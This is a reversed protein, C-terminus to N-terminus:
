AHATGHVNTIVLRNPVGDLAVTSHMAADICRKCAQWITSENTQQIAKFLCIEAKNRLRGRADRAIEEITTGERLYPMVHLAYDLFPRNIIYRAGWYKAQLRALLIDNSPPDSDSWQFHPPLTQRWYGLVDEHGALVECVQATSLSLCHDGYLERHVQNLRKRLFTQATYFLLINNYSRQSDTEQHWAEIDEYSQREEDPMNHPLLLLNEAAQIGSSPLRLEALVDSELQLCTWSALVILNCRKDKIRAQGRRHQKEIDGHVNWYNDNYLKHQDLLMMITRSALVICNLSERVRALQGKYLGALLFMQAHPLSNGDCLDGLIEAAKAYYALGPIMDLNRPETGRITHSSSNGNQYDPHLSQIDVIPPTSQNSPTSDPSMPNQGAAAFFPSHSSAGFSRTIPAGVDQTVGPLPTKHLCIKGLALVLWVIANEPSRETTQTAGVDRGPQTVNYGGTSRQRKWAREQSTSGNPVIQKTHDNSTGYESMFRKILTQLGAKDLFPHLIHIHQLYSKYLTRITSIDLDLSGDTKLGGQNPLEFRGTDGNGLTDHFGTGWLLNSPRPAGDDASDESREPSGCGRRSTGDSYKSGEGRAYIRLSGRNEAKMVYEENLDIKADRWLVGISPWLVILNHPATRHDNLEPNRSTALEPGPIQDVDASVPRQLTHENQRLRTDIDNIKATLSNLAGVHTEMAVSHGEIYQLVRDM